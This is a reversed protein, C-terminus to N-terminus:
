PTMDHCLMTGFTMVFAQEHSFCGHLFTYRCSSSGASSASDAAAAAPSSSNSWMFVILLSRAECDGLIYAQTYHQGRNSWFLPLQSSYEEFYNPKIWSCGDNFNFKVVECDVSGATYTVLSGSEPTCAYWNM